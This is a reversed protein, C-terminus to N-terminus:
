VETVGVPLDLLPNTSPKILQGTECFYQGNEHFSWILDERYKFISGHRAEELIQEKGPEEWNEKMQNTDLKIKIVEYIYITDFKNNSLFEYLEDKTYKTSPDGSYGCDFEGNGCYWCGKCYLNKNTILFNLLIEMLPKELCSLDKGECYIPDYSFANKSRNWQDTFDIKFLKANM